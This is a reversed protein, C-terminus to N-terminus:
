EEFMNYATLIECGIVYLAREIAQQMPLTPETM